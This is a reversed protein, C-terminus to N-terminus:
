GNNLRAVEVIFLLWLLLGALFLRIADKYHSHKKKSITSTIHIQDILEAKYKAASLANIKKAFEKSSFEAISGFYIPSKKAGTSTRPSVAVLLKTLGYGFLVIAVVLLALALKSIQNDGSTLLDYTPKAIITITAAELVLGISIKQDASIIWARVTELLKELEKTGM